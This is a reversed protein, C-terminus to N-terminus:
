REPAQWTAGYKAYIDAIRGDEIAAFIADDVAYGLARYRFNVATGLTWQGVAFGPLPPQHVKLGDTLGAELQTRPGMVAKVEGAALGAMADATTPYRAMKKSLQGGPFATLYFDSISDNEVGVPDFRFYAPVPAEGDPYASQAYAIAISETAYQGTFVVQEARCAFTSDYPIHMMINAVRGGTVPGKWIWNRLDADLNEGAGVLRFKPEVGLAQAILAGIEVDIGTPKGNEAYSYPPFEEFLAIDVWGRAVIQDLDQGIIDRSANQPKPQPVYDECRAAAQGALCALAILGLATKRIADWM